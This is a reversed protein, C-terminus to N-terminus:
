NLDPDMLRAYAKDEGQSYSKEYWKRAMKKDKKVGIGKQYLFGLQFSAYSSGLQSAKEYWKIGQETNKVIGPYDIHDIGTLLDGVMEMAETHGLDAAKLAWKLGKSNYDERNDDTSNNSYALALNYSASGDGQEAAKEWWVLAKEFSSPNHTFNKYTDMHLSGMMVQAELYGQEASKLFWEYAKAYDKEKGRRGLRYDKALEFQAIADTPNDPDSIGSKDILTLVYTSLRNLQVLGYDPMHISIPDHEEFLLTLKKVGHPVYVWTTAGYRQPDGFTEAGEVAVIKDIVKVKLLACPENQSDMRRYTSASIDSIDQALDRVILEQGFAGNLFLSQLICILFTFNVRMM